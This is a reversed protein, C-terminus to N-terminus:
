KENRIYTKWEECAPCKVGKEFALEAFGRVGCVHRPKVTVAQTENQKELFTCKWCEFLGKGIPNMLIGCDECRKHQYDYEKLQEQMKKFEAVVREALLLDIYCFEEDCATLLNDLDRQTVNV